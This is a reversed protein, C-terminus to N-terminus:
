CPQRKRPASEDDDSEFGLEHVGPEALEKLWARMVTTGQGFVPNFTLQEAM